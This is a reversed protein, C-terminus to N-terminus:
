RPRGRADNYASSVGSTSRASALRKFYEDSGKEPGQEGGGPPPKITSTKNFLEPAKVQLAKLAKRVDGDTFTEPADDELGLRPLMAEVLDRNGIKGDTLIRDVFGRQRTGRKLGDLEQELAAIKEDRGRIDTQLRGEVAKWDGAAREREELTKREKTQYESLQSELSRIKTKAEAREAKTKRLHEDHRDTESGGETGAGESDQQQEQTDEDAM